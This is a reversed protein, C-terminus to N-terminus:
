SRDLRRYAASVFGLTLPAQLGALVIAWVLAGWRGSVVGNASLLTLIVVPASTAVLGAFLPWAAGKVILFSDLSVMRGRAVTAPGYLSLRVFLSVVILVTAVGAVAVVALKWSSGAAGWNRAAIADADLEAMGAGALLVLGLVSVMMVVLLLCLLAAGLLRAEPKGLQLGAPGLGALPGEAEGLAIRLLGGKLALGAALAAAAVLWRWGGLEPLLLMLAVAAIWAVMAGWAGRWAPTLGRLTEGLAEAANLEPRPPRHPAAHGNSM